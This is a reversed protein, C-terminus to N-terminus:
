LILFVSNLWSLVFGTVDHNMTNWFHQYFLSPMGDLGPAKLTAMQQLANAVERELFDGTLHLNVDDTIVRPISDLVQSNTMPGPSTFLGQKYSVLVSAIEDFQNKWVDM